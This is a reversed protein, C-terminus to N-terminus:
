AQAALTRATPWTPDEHFDIIQGTRDLGGHRAALASLAAENDALRALTQAVLLTAADPALSPPHGARLHPTPPHDNAITKALPDWYAFAAPGFRIQAGGHQDPTEAARGQADLADIEAPDTVIVIDYDTLDLGLLAALERVIGETHPVTSSDAAVSAN